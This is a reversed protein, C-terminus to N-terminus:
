YKGLTTIFLHQRWCDGVRYDFSQVLKLTEPLLNPLCQPCRTVISLRSSSSKWSNWLRRFYGGGDFTLFYSMTFTLPSSTFTVLTCLVINKLNYVTLTWIMPQGSPLVLVLSNRWASIWGCDLKEQGLFISVYLFNFVLIWNKVYTSTFIIM